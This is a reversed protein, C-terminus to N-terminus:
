QPRSDLPGCSSFSYVALLMLISPNVTTLRAAPVKPPSSGTAPGLCGGFQPTDIACFRPCVASLPFTCRHCGPVITLRTALPSPAPAKPFALRTCSYSRFHQSVNSYIRFPIQSTRPAAIACPAFRLSSLFESCAVGDDDCDSLAQRADSPYSGREPISCNQNPIQLTPERGRASNPM